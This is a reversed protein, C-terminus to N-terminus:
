PHDGGPPKVFEVHGSLLQSLPQQALKEKTARVYSTLQNLSNASPATNGYLNRALTEGLLADNGHIAREYAQGRGYFAALMPKMKKGISMDGVGMERLNQDMDAFMLDFFRQRAEPAGELCRMVLFVHLLLLDFRGDITDPIGLQSYFTPARAQLVCASYLAPIASDAVTSPSFFRQIKPLLAM